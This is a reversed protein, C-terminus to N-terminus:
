SAERPELATVGKVALIHACNVGYADCSCEWGRESRGTTYIAGSGRVDATCTGAYDDVSRIVVRGEVLYRRAKM